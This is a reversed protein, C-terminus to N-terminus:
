PTSNMTNQLTFAQMWVMKSWNGRCAQCPQWRTRPWETAMGFHIAVQELTSFEIFVRIIIYDKWSRESWPNSHLDSDKHHGRLTQGLSGPVGLIM